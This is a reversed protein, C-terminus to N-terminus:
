EDYHSKPELQWTDMQFGIHPPYKIKKIGPFQPYIQVFTPILPNLARDNSFFFFLFVFFILNLSGGPKM